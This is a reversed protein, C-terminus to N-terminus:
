YRTARRLGLIVGTMGLMFITTRAILFEELNPIHRNSVSLCIYGLMSGSSLIDISVITSIIAMSIIINKSYSMFLTGIGMLFIVPTFFRFLLMMFSQFSTINEGYLMLVSIIYIGFSILSYFLYDKMLYINLLKTNLYVSMEYKNGEYVKYISSVFFMSIIYPTYRELISEKWLFGENLNGSRKFFDVINIQDNLPNSFLIAYVIALIGVVVIKLMNDRTLTKFM